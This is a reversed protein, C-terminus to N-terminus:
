PWRISSGPAHGIPSNFCTVTPEVLHDGPEIGLAGHLTEIAIHSATSRRRPVTTSCSPSPIMANNPAGHCLLTM